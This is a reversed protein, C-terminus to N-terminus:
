VVPAWGIGPFYKVKTKTKPKADKISPWKSSALKGKTPKRKSTAGKVFRGLKDRKYVQAM